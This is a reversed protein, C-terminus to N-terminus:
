YEGMDSLYANNKEDDLYYLPFGFLTFYNRLTYITIYYGFWFKFSCQRASFELSWIVEM